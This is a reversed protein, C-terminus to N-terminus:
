PKEKGKTRGSVGIDAEEVEPSELKLSNLKIVL